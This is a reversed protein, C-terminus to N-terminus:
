GSSYISWRLSSHCVHIYWWSLTKRHIHVDDNKKFHLSGYEDRPLFCVKMHVTDNVGYGCINDFKTQQNEEDTVIVFGESCWAYCDTSEDNNYVFNDWLYYPPNDCRIGIFQNFVGYISFQAISHM